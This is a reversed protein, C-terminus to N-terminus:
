RKKLKLRILLGNVADFDVVNGNAVDVAPEDRCYQWLIESTNSYNDSYEILKYMQVVVDFDHKNQRHLLHIACM